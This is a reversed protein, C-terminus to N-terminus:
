TSLFAFSFGIHVYIWQVSPTINEAILVHSWEKATRHLQVIEIYPFPYIYYSLASIYMPTRLYIPYYFNLLGYWYTISYNIKKDCTLVLLLLPICLLHYTRYRRLVILKRSLDRGVYTRVFACAITSFLICADSM